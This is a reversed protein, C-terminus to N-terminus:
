VRYAPYPFSKFLEGQRYFTIQADPNEGECIATVRWDGETIDYMVESMASRRDPQPCVRHDAGVRGPRRCGGTEDRVAAAQSNSRPGRSKTSRSRNRNRNPSASFRRM